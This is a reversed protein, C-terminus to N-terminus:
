QNLFDSFSVEFSITTNIKYSVDHCYELQICHLTYKKITIPAIIVHCALILQDERTKTFICNRSMLGIECHQWATITLAIIYYVILCFNMVLPRNDIM